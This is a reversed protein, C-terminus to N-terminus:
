LYKSCSIREINDAVFIFMRTAPKARRNTQSSWREPCEYKNAFRRATAHPFLASYNGQCGGAVTVGGRVCDVANNTLTRVMFGTV